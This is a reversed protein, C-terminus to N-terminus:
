RKNIAKVPCVDMCRGCHLCNEQHIYAYGDVIQICQQPCVNICTKCGVCQKTVFYGHAQTTVDGFSFSERFIPKSSLDFYEGTGKFVKFVTLAKRSEKSPYIKEMYTNKDFIEDLLTSGVEKVEGQVTISKSSLTDEGIFGSISISPNNIIREYFAKGKATLFYLGTEDSLMMDIICTVPKNEKNISAVVTTHIEEQLFTLYKLM